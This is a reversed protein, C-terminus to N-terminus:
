EREREREGKCEIMYIKARTQEVIDVTPFNFERKVLHKNAYFASFSANLINKKYLFHVNYGNLSHLVCTCIYKRKKKM